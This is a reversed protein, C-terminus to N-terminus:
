WNIMIAICHMIDYVFDFARQLKSCKWFLCVSFFWYHKV